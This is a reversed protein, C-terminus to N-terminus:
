KKQEEAIFEPQNWYAEGSPPLPYLLQLWDRGSFAHGCSASILFPTDRTLVGRYRSLGAVGRLFDGKPDEPVSPFVGPVPVIAREALESICNEPMDNVADFSYLDFPFSAARVNFPACCHLGFFTRADGAASRIALYGSELEILEDQSLEEIQFLSPEDLVFLLTGAASGLFSKQWEIQRICAQAFEAAISAPERRSSANSYLTFPGPLQCKFVPFHLGERDARKKIEYLGSAEEEDYRKWGSDMSRLGRSIMLEREDKRPLEPWFPLIYPRSLIFTVAEIPDRFPLSGVLFHSYRNKLLNKLM